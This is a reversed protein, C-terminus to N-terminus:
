GNQSAPQLYLSGEETGFSLAMKKKEAARALIMGRESLGLGYEFCLESALAWTVANIWYTPFDLTDTSASFDEFPFQCLLYATDTDTPVPYFTIRGALQTSAIAAPPQYYFQNPAGSTLKDGIMDYQWQTILNLPRTTNSSNTLWVDFVRLPAVQAVTSGIGINYGATGAVLPFTMTSVKWLPMGDTELEKAIMNLAMAAETVADASPTAGQGVAGSIRLARTILQDRTANFTTTGSTAM